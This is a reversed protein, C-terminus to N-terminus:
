HPELAYVDTQVPRELFPEVAFHVVYRRLFSEATKKKTRLHRAM